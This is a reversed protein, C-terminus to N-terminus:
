VVPALLSRASAGILWTGVGPDRSVWEAYSKHGYVAVLSAASFRVAGVFVTVMDRRRLPVMGAEMVVEM